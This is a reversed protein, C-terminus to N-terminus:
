PRNLTLGALTARVGDALAQAGAERSDLFWGPLPSRLAHTLEISVMGHIATWVLYAARLPDAAPVVKAVRETLLPLTRELAARRLDPPPDFDAIPREFLLAYLAPNALAFDRYTAALALVPEPGAGGPGDNPAGNPAKDLAARLLTFGRDYVAELLGARSGFRSYIGMTSSEAAEAVRRVTLEAAGHDALTRLAADVFRDRDATLESSRM